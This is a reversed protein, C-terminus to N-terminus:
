TLLQAAGAGRQDAARPMPVRASGAQSGFGRTGQDKLAVEFQMDLMPAPTM